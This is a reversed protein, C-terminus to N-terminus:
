KWPVSLHQTDCLKARVCTQCLYEIYTPVRHAIYVRQPSTLEVADSDVIDQQDTEGGGPEPQPTLPFMTHAARVEEDRVRLEEDLSDLNPLEGLPLLVILRQVALLAKHLKKPTYSQVERVRRPQVGVSVTQAAGEDDEHLELLHFRVTNTAIDEQTNYVDQTSSYTRSRHDVERAFYMLAEALKIHPSLVIPSDYCLLKAALRSAVVVGSLESQPGTPFVKLVLRPKSTVSYSAIMKASNMRGTVFIRGTNLKRWKIQHEERMLDNWSYETKAPPLSLNSKANDLHSLDKECLDEKVRGVGLKDALDVALKSNKFLAPDGVTPYDVTVGDIQAAGRLCHSVQGKKHFSKSITNNRWVMSAESFLPNRFSIRPDHGMLIYGSGFPVTYVRLEGVLDEKRHGGVCHLSIMEAGILLQVEGAPKDLAGPPVWPFAEYGYSVDFSGPNETIKDVGALVLQKIGLGPINWDLLYFVVSRTEPEQTCLQVTQTGVRGRLGLQAALSHTIMSSSSGNDIFIVADTKGNINASTIALMVDPDIDEPWAGRTQVHNRQVLQDTHFINAHKKGCKTGPIGNAPMQCTWNPDDVKDCAADIHTWSGCVTCCEEKEALELRQDISFNRFTPCDKLNHSAYHKGNKFWYHGEGGCAKCPGYEAWRTKMRQLIDAPPPPIKKEGGAGQRPGAGGKKSDKSGDHPLTNEAQAGNQRDKRHMHDSKNDRSRTEESYLYPLAAMKQMEVFAVYEEYLEKAPLVGDARAKEKQYKINCFQNRYFRPLLSIAHALIYENSKLYDPRGLKELTLQMLKFKQELKVIKEEDDRGEVSKTEMFSGTVKACVVYANAYKLDLCRWVEDVTKCVRIADRDEKPVYHQVTNLFAIESHAPIWDQKWEEKFDAYAIPIENAPIGKLSMPERQKYRISSRKSLNLTAGDEGLVSNNPTSHSTSHPKAAISDNSINKRLFTEELAFIDDGLKLKADNLKKLIERRARASAVPSQVFADATRTMARPYETKLLATIDDLKKRFFQYRHQPVERESGVNPEKDLANSLQTIGRTIQDEVSQAEDEFIEIDPNSAIAQARTNDPQPGGDGGAGGPRFTAVKQDLDRLQPTWTNNFETLETILRDQAEGANSVLAETYAAECEKFIEYMQRLIPTLTDYPNENNIGNELFVKKIDLQATFQASLVAEAM